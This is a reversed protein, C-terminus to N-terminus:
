LPRLQPCHIPSLLVQHSKKERGERGGALSLHWDLQNVPERSNSVTRGLPQQSFDHLWRISIARGAPLFLIELARKEGQLLYQRLMKADRGTAISVTLPVCTFLGGTLSM